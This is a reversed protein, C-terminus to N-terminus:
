EGIQTDRRGSFLTTLAGRLAEQHRQFSAEAPGGTYLGSRITSFEDGGEVLERQMVNLNM